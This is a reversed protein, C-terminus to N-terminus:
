FDYFRGKLYRNFTLKKELNWIMSSNDLNNFHSLLHIVHMNLRKGSFEQGGNKTRTLNELRALKCIAHRSLHLLRELFLHTKSVHVIELLYRFFFAFTNWFVILTPLVKQNCQEGLLFRSFLYIYMVNDAQSFNAM